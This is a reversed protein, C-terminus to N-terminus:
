QLASPGDRWMISSQFFSRSCRDMRIKDNVPKMRHKRTDTHTQPTITHDNCKKQSERESIGDRVVNERHSVSNYKVCSDIALARFTYLNLIARRLGSNSQFREISFQRSHAWLVLLIDFKIESKARKEESRSYKLPFFQASNLLFLRGLGAFYRVLIYCVCLLFKLFNSACFM